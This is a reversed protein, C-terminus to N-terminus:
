LQYPGRWLYFDAPTCRLPLRLALRLAYRVFFYSHDYGEQGRVQV